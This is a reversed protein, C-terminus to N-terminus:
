QVWYSRRVYDLIGSVGLDHGSGIILWLILFTIVSRIVITESCGVGVKWVGCASVVGVDLLLFLAAFVFAYNMCCRFVQLFVEYQVEYVLTLISVDFTGLPFLKLGSIHVEILLPLIGLCLGYLWVTEGLLRATPSDLTLTTPNHISGLSQGRGTDLLAGLGRGLDKIFVLFAGIGAGVLANYVVLIEGSGVAFPLAVVTLVFGLIVRIATGAPLFIATCMSRTLLNFFSDSWMEM